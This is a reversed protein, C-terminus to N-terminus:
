YDTASVLSQSLPGNIRSGQPSMLAVYVRGDLQESFFRVHGDGFVAHFGGMHFSNPWPARGEPQTRGFNISEWQYPIQRSNARSFDVNAASCQLKDCTYGSVFVCTRWAEPSSWGGFDPFFPDYGARYNELVLLTNTLGDHVSDITHARRIGTGPPYSEMFFMGSRLMLDHDTGVMPVYTDNACTKGDGNLDIAVAWQVPSALAHLTAPCEGASTWAFGGNAAYSLNGFSPVVTIDDPCELVQIRTNALVLNEPSNYPQDSHWLEAIDNRELFPLIEQVWNSYGDPTISSFTGGSPFRGKNQAQSYLALGVNKLNSKCQVRRAAGRASLVGPLILSCLLSIVAIVVLLEIVTFGSRLSVRGSTKIYKTM